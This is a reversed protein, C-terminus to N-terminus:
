KQMLHWYCGGYNNSRLVADTVKVPVGHMESLCKSIGELDKMALGHTGKWYKGTSMFCLYKNSLNYFDMFHTEWLKKQQGSWPDCNVLDFKKNAKCYQEATKYADACVYKWAPSYTKKMKELKPADIDVLVAEQIKNKAVQVEYVGNFAACFFYAATECQSVIKKPYPHSM